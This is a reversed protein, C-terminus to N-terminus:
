LIMYELRDGLLGIGLIGVVVGFGMRLGGLRGEVMVVGEIEGLVERGVLVLGEGVELMLVGIM